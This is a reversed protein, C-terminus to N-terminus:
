RDRKGSLRGRCRRLIGLVQSGSKAEERGHNWGVGFDRLQEGRSTEIGLARGRADAEIQRLILRLSEEVRLLLRLGPLSGLDAAALVPFACLRNVCIVNNNEIQM